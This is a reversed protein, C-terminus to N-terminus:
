IIETSAIRIHEANVTQNKEISCALLGGRALANAKRLMGGSGQYIATIAEPEFIEKKCGAVTLHHTIYEKLESEKVAQLHTKTIVRSALPLSTLYTLKDLLIPTGALVLTFLSQSDYDYQSLTHLEAFVESRLLNAEDVVMIIKKKKAGSIERLAQRFARVLYSRSASRVDLDIAWCLQKYLEGMSGSSGLVPVCQVQSKHFSSLGYRLATSKGSGVDGTVLMIGGLELAYHMREKVGLMQPLKMLEKTELDKHFPEKKFGFYNTYSSMM